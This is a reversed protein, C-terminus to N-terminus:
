LVKKETMRDIDAMRESTYIGKYVRVPYHGLKEAADFDAGSKLLFGCKDVWILLENQYEEALHNPVKNVWEEKSNLTLVPEGWCKVNESQNVKDLTEGLLKILSKKDWKMMEKEWGPGYALYDDM